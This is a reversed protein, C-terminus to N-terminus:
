DSWPVRAGVIAGPGLIQPQQAYGLGALTERTVAVLREFTIRKRRRLEQCLAFTFAGYSTVGHRYEYSFENEQCAEIILPLYPGIRASGARRKRRKYEEESQQRVLSARGLRTLAGGEGFFAANVDAQSSFKRNLPKFDRPVWMDTKADWKIERHRIDDPPNLGRVRAGGQRHMGGSHCCDMIMGFRVGYPLQSYLAFIQDDVIGTEPSWDFDHPVLTETKRDPELDEGYEPIVAGHGSYYFIREDGDRPDDLLWKLRETIGAATAREDLCVRISEPRFGCEQLTSSMLFVDNVCGELRDQENPYDNIGVLLARRPDRGQKALVAASERRPARAAGFARANIRQEAIPRWVNEVTQLHTLYEVASHDAFGDIDFPTEVQRFGPMTWLKIPATFVDDEKNYLHHWSKVPLPEIRGSTLNGVVFPNGIQSGLTVYRVNALADAVAGKKADDHCFANYTVLSGLSHAIVVDPREAAIAQLVRERTKTKFADDEVWAVVYGATWRVRDSIEGVVDRRRGLATDAGSRALKWVARMTEWASLDVTEFIDDYSLFACDLQLSDQGPIVLRLAEQWDHKWTSNRHDGLGHVGLLKITKM